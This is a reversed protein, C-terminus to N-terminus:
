ASFASFQHKRRHLIMFINWEDDGQPIHHTVLRTMDLFGSINLTKEAYEGWATGRSSNAEPTFQVIAWYAPVKFHM